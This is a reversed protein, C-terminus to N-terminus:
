RATFDPRAIEHAVGKGGEDAEIQKVSTPAGGPNAAEKKESM